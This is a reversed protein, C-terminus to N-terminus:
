QIPNCEAYQPLQKQNNRLTKEIARLEAIKKADQATKTKNCNKYLTQINEMDWEDGGLAIPIIHDAIYQSLDPRNTDILEWVNRGDPLQRPQSNIYTFRAGCITRTYKDRHFVKSRMQDWRYVIDTFNMTCKQSCCRFKTSRTWESKPKKCVPCLGREIRSKAPELIVIKYGERKKVM